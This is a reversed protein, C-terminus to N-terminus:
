WTYFICPTGTFMAMSVIYLPNWYVNGHICYVPTGTFMAMSVIYLPNWYINGQICYVPHELLCQGPDLICPTGTFM